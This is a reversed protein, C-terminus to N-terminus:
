RNMAVWISKNELTSPVQNDRAVTDYMPNM